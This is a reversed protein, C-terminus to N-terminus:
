TLSPEPSHPKPNVLCRWSQWVEGFKAHRRVSAEPRGPVEQISSGLGPSIASTQGEDHELM